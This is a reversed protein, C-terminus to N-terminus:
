KNTKKRGARIELDSEPLSEGVREGLGWVRPKEDGGVVGCVWAEDM